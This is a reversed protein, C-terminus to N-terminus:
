RVMVDGLQQQRQQKVVRAQKLQELAATIQTMTGTVQDDWRKLIASIESTTIASSEIEMDTSPTVVVDRGMCFDVLFCGKQSDLKGALLNDYLSDIILQEVADQSDLELAEQIEDYALTPNRSAMTVLSLKKLKHIQKDTLEPLNAKNAVYDSWMGHAVLTLLAWVSPKETELKKINEQQMLETFVFVHNAELADNVLKVAAAGKCTKALLLFSELAHPLSTALIPEASTM